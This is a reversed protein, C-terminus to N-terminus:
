EGGKSERCEHCVHIDYEDDVELSMPHVTEDCGECQEACDICCTYYDKFTIPHLGPKECSHCGDLNNPPEMNDYRHQAIQMPDM